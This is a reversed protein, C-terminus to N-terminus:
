KKKNMSGLMEEEFHLLFQEPDPTSGFLIHDVSSRQGRDKESEVGKEKFWQQWRASFQKYSESQEKGYKQFILDYKTKDCINIFDSKEELTLFGNKQLAHKIEQIRANTYIVQCIERGIQTWEADFDKFNFGGTTLTM